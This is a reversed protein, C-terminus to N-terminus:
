AKKPNPFTMPVIWQGDAALDNWRPVRCMSSRLDPVYKPTVEEELDRALDLVEQWSGAAISETPCLQCSGRTFDGGETALVHRMHSFADHPYDARILYWSGSQEVSDLGAAVPAIFPMFLRNDHFRLLFLQDTVMIDDSSPQADRLWEVAEDWIGPGWLYDCPRATMAYRADFSDGITRDAPDALVIACTADAPMLGQLSFNEALGYSIMSDTWALAVPERQIPAPVQGGWLRNILAALHFIEAAADDPMERHYHPHATYNRFWIRYRDQLRDRQGGLLNEARAWRLLSTLMGDFKIPSGGSRLKLRSWNRQVLPQNRDYLADFSGATVTHEGDSRDVFTVTGDYFPLFRDRLAQEAVLRAADGAVTYFDYCFIGYSYITRIRDYSLRTTEPVGDVLGFEAVLEQRYEAMGEAIADEDLNLPRIVLSAPDVERLEALTKVIM